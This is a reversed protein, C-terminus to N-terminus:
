GFQTFTTTYMWLSTRRLMHNENMDTSGNVEGNNLFLLKTWGGPV